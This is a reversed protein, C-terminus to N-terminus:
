GAGELSQACSGAEAMFLGAEMADDMSLGARSETIEAEDGELSALLFARADESLEDKARDAMCECMPQSWNTSELCATTFRDAFDGGAGGCAVPLVALLILAPFARVRTM